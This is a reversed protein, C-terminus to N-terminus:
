KTINIIKNERISCRYNAKQSNICYVLLLSNFETEKKTTQRRVVLWVPDNTVPLYLDIAILKFMAKPKACAAAAHSKHACRMQLKQARLTM